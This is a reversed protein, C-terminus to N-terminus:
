LQPNLIRQPLITPELTSILIYLFTFLVPMFFNLM